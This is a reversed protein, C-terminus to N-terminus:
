VAVETPPSFFSLNLLLSPFPLSFAYGSSPLKLYFFFGNKEGRLYFYLFRFFNGKKRRTLSFFLSWNEDSVFVFAFILSSHAGLFLFFLPFCNGEELMEIELFFIGIRFGKGCNGKGERSGADM